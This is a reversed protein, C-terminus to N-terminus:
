IALWVLKALFLRTLSGFKKNVLGSLSFITM